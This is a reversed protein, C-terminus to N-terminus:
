EEEFLLELDALLTPQNQKVWWFYDGGAEVVQSSLQRQTHMADGTVVAGTLEVQALLTPAAGIENTKSGVAAQAVVWGQDAQYAALLHMRSTQGLPITGRLTKGDLNVILSGRAPVEATVPAASLSAVVQELATIVLAQAFVRTWTAEHPMSPRKLDFLEVLADARARAWDAIAAIQSYGSLKALVAITLLVALPYRVGRRKRRDALTQFQHYIAGLDLVIPAEQTPMDVALITRNM